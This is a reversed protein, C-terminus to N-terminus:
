SAGRLDALLAIHSTLGSDAVIVQGTIVRSDPSALFAAINAIDEPEAVYPLSSHKIYRNIFEPGGDLAPQTLVLGPAIANCRINQKGYQAAVSRVLEIIASKASGYATQVSEGVMGSISATCIISGGDPNRVMHPIVHKCTLLAGLAMTEFQLRWMDVTTSVVDLDGPDALARLDAAQSHLIDIRGFEAVAADVLSRVEDELRVDTRVALATGGSAKIEDARAAAGQGDIDALVVSAGLGSLKRATAYGQGKEHAAGTIVAVKGALDSM